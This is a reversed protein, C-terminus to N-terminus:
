QSIILKQIQSFRGLTSSELFYMGSALRESGLNITANPQVTGAYEVQGNISLLRIQVEQQNTNKINLVDSAPQPFVELGAFKQEEIGVTNNQRLTFAVTDKDAPNAMDYFELVINGIGTIGDANVTVTFFGNQGNQAMQMTIPNMTGSDPIGPYCGGFDCLSLVWGAPTDKTLSRWAYTIDRPTPTEFAIGITEYQDYSINSDLSQAPLFTYQASLGLSFLCLLAFLLGKKM